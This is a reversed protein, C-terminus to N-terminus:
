ITMIDKDKAAILEDVKKTFSNTAEQVIAEKTKGSDEPFGNKVSSKITSM